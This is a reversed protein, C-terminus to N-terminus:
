SSTKELLRVEMPVERVVAVDVVPDFLSGLGEAGQPVMEESRRVDGLPELALHIRSADERHQEVAALRPTERGLHDLFEAAPVVLADALHAADGNALGEDVADGGLAKLMSGSQELDLVIERAARQEPGSVHRAHGFM